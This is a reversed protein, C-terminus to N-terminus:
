ERAKEYKTCYPLRKCTPTDEPARWGSARDVARHEPTTGDSRTAPLERSAWTVGTTSRHSTTPTPPPLPNGNDAPADPRPVEELPSLDLPQQLRPQGPFRPPVPQPPEPAGHEPSPYYMDEPLCRERSGEPMWGRPDIPPCLRHVNEPLTGFQGADPFRAEFPRPNQNLPGFLLPTTTRQFEHCEQGHREPGYPMIHPILAIIIEDRKRMLERRQFLRGVLWLDGIIPIKTQTETDEEQILGGIVMGHGDPLMLSTQVETTEEEPLETAPNIQGSSIQPAVTMMINGDRTIVPTVELVVGTDLFEVSELTSTQTTTTVRYGLQEGIQIRAKQGNLALVKPRALMKADKTRELAELLATLDSADINAFFAPAVGNAFAAANAFGQTRVTVSTGNQDIYELNLGSQVDDTLEVSLVHAEILVQRPPRDVARIYDAIRNLSEPLDEVVLREQTRRTDTDTTQMIFSQGVPSILGKIITDLDAAAVYDLTFVRVVRGQAEPILARGQSLSTVILVDGQRVWHYGAVSLMQTLATELHVDELTLTLRASIDEGTILDLGHQQALVSLVENLPADRVIITVMGTQRDTEVAGPPLTSSFPIRYQPVPAPPQFGRSFVRLLDTPGFGAGPPGHSAPEEVMAGDTQSVLRVKSEHSEGDPGATTRDTTRRRANWATDGRDLFQAPRIAASDDSDGHTPTPSDPCAAPVNKCRVECSKRHSQSVSDDSKNRIQGVASRSSDGSDLPLRSAVDREDVKKTVQQPEAPTARPVDFARVVFVAVCTSLVVGALFALSKVLGLQKM